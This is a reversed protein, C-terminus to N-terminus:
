AYNRILLETHGSRKDSVSNIRRSTWVRKMTWSASDFMSKVIESDSNSLLVKCGISDLHICLRALSEQDKLTFDNHTYRTFSATQSVPVYPPDFYLLDGEQAYDAVKKFDRCTISINPHQLTQSVMHLNKEDVINPNKYRGFPVNFKGRSNVRYLGNFCTHNLFILRAVKEIDDATDADHSDRVKYYYSESDEFYNSRHMKLLCILDDVKDRIITYALILEHNIDSVSYAHDSHADMMHFFMAGGGLFPEFYRGFNDPLASDLIPLLQRKGGAWKVFPRHRVTVSRSSM